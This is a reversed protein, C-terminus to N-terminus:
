NARGSGGDKMALSCGKTQLNSASFDIDWGSSPVFDKQVAGSEYVSGTSHGSAHQCSYVAYSYKIGAGSPVVLACKDTPSPSM